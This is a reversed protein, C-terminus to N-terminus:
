PASVNGILIEEEAKADYARRKARLVKHMIESAREANVVVVTNGTTRYTRYTQPATDGERSMIVVTNKTHLSKAKNM